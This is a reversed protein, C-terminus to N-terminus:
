FQPAYWPKFKTGTVLSKVQCEAGGRATACTFENWHDCPLTPFDWSLALHLIEPGMQREVQWCPGPTNLLPIFSCIVLEWFLGLYHIPGLRGQCPNSDSNPLKSTVRTLEQSLQKGRRVRAQTASVLREPLLPM